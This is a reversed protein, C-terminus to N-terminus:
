NNPRFGFGPPPGLPIYPKPKVCPPDYSNRYWNAWVPEQYLGRDGAYQLPQSVGRVCAVLHMLGKEVSGDEHQLRGERFPSLLTDIATKGGMSIESGDEVFPDAGESVLFSLFDGFSEVVESTYPCDFGKPHDHLQDRTLEDTHVFWYILEHLPTKKVPHPDPPHKISRPPKGRGRWRDWRGRLGRRSRTGWRSRGARGFRTGGRGDGRGGGGRGNTSHPTTSDEHPANENSSIQWYYSWSSAAVDDHMTDAANVTDNIDAGARVLAKISARGIAEVKIWRSPRVERDRMLGKDVIVRRLLANKAGQDLSKIHPMLLALFDEWPKLNEIENYRSTKSPGDILVLIRGLDRESISHEVLVKITSFFDPKELFSVGWKTLLLEVPSPLGQFNRDNIDQDLNPLTRKMKPSVGGPVCGGSARIIYMVEESATMHHAEFNPPGDKWPELLSLYNLFPTTCMRVQRFHEDRVLHRIGTHCPRHVDAGLAMCADLLETRGTRAMHRIAMFIPIHTYCQPNRNRLPDGIDLQAGRAVLLHFIELDGRMCAVGLPTVSLPGDTYLNGMVSGIKNLSAGHDILTEILALPAWHVVYALDLISIMAHVQSCTNKRNDKLYPTKARAEVFTELFRINEPQSLMWTFAHLQYTNIPVRKRGPYDHASLGVGLDLLLKYAAFQGAEMAVGLSSKERENAEPHPCVVTHKNLVYRQVVSLKFGCAAAKRIAHLNGTSCGYQLIAKHSDYTKYLLPEVRRHLFRSCQSLRALTTCVMHDCARLKGIDHDILHELISDLLEDPLAELPSARNMARLTPQPKPALGMM